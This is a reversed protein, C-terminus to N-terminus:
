IGYVFRLGPATSISDGRTGLGGQHLMSDESKSGMSGRGRYRSVIGFVLAVDVCRLRLAALRVM